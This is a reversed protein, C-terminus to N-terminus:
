AEKEEHKEKIEKIAYEITVGHQDAYLEILIGFWDKPTLKGMIMEPKEM